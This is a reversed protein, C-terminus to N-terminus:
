PRYNRTQARLSTLADQQIRMWALVDEGIHDIEERTLVRASSETATAIWVPLGVWQSSARCTTEIARHAVLVGDDVSATSPLYHAMLAQAVSAFEGGFGVASFGVDHHWNM